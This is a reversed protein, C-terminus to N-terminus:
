VLEYFLIYWSRLIDHVDEDSAFSPQQHDHRVVLASNDAGRALRTAKQTSSVRSHPRQSPLGVSDIVLFSSDCPKLGSLALTVRAAGLARYHSTHAHTASM